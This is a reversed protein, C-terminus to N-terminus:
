SATVPIFIVKDEVVKLLYAEQVVAIYPNGHPFVVGDFNGLFSLSHDNQVFLINVCSFFVVLPFLNSWCCFHVSLFIWICCFFVKPVLLLLFGEHNSLETSLNFHSTIVTPVYILLNSLWNFGWLVAFISDQFFLYM